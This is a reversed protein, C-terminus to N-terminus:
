IYIMRRKLHPRLSLLQSGLPLSSASYRSVSQVNGIVLTRDDRMVWTLFYTFSAQSLTLDADRERKWHGSCSHLRCINVVVVRCSSACPSTSHLATIHGFYHTQLLPKRSLTFAFSLSSSPMAFHLSCDLIYIPSFGQRTSSLQSIWVTMSMCAEGFARKRKCEPTAAAVTSPGHHKFWQGFPCARKRLSEYWCTELESSTTLLLM